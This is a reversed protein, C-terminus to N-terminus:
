EPKLLPSFKQRLKALKPNIVVQCYPNKDKNREYYNRHYDEAVYFKDLPRIETVIPSDFIKEQELEALVEEAERKQLDTTYFIVSKYQEGVDAGQQNMTTPDHTAFFVNLLDKFAIQSPDFEFKVVEVHGIKGSSVQEYTPNAVIGGAYGPLVSIVGRLRLFIAETCWFCGGGFVATEIKNEM